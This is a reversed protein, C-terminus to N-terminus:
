QKAIWVAIKELAAPAMTEEIKEYEQVGGTKATQFLHNLGPMEAIEFHANGGEELAKRIPPLNQKAWVQRDLTGNLALVPCAVKRLATAPDYTLFYRMWPTDLAAIQPELAEAPAEPFKEKAKQKLAAADKEMEVLSILSRVNDAAKQAAERTGGASEVLQRNQEYLVADGPVGTGAMMVIYAVDANRAAVMPAILGGESHGVLGIKRPNVEPRSKLYAVGAEADTAFDATTAGPFKGGSKGVGRDDARLVAIGHRTLYDALVLFPRHGAIAEDRDQPGSGTILLVAPFPGPGQPLTLTAGFRIGAASNSYSVEEERYPYPKSPNQPRKAPPAPAPAGRKLVLPMPQGQNWTGDITNGDASLKGEFQANVIRLQMSLVQEKVTVSSIPIGNSGQDLSDLSAEFVDGASAAIHFVLRLKQGGVDLAGSWDGAVPHKAPRRLTLPIAQGQNWTGEIASGDSSLKGEFTGGIDKSALSLAGEKFAISSIPIAPANQDLSDFTGSLAGDAGRSFHFVLRLTTGGARLMGHWDGALNQAEAPIFALMLTIALLRM